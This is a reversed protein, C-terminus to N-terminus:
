RYTYSGSSPVRLSGTSEVVPLEGNTSKPPDLVSHSVRGDQDRHEAEEGRQGAEAPQEEAQSDESEVPEADEAIQRLEIAHPDPPPQRDDAPDAEQQGGEAEPRE